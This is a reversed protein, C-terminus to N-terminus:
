CGSRCRVELSVLLAHRATHYRLWKVLAGLTPNVVSTRDDNFSPHSLYRRLHKVAAVSCPTDTRALADSMFNNLLAQFEPWVGARGSPLGLQTLDHDHFVTITGDVALKTTSSVTGLGAGNSRENAGEHEPERKRLALLMAEAIHIWLDPPATEAKLAAVASTGIGRLAAFADRRLVEVESAPGSTVSEVAHLVTDVYACTSSLTLVVKAWEELRTQDHPPFCSPM